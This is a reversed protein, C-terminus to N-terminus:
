SGLGQMLAQLSLRGRSPSTPQGPANPLSGGAMKVGGPNKAGAADLWTDWGTGLLPDPATQAAAVEYNTSPDNPIPGTPDFASNLGGMASSLRKQPTAGFTSTM